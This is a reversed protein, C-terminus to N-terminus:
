EGSLYHDVLIFPLTIIFLLLFIILGFLTFFTDIATHIIERARRKAIYTKFTALLM